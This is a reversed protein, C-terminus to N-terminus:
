KKEGWGSVIINEIKYKKELNKLISIILFISNLFKGLISNYRFVLSEKLNIDPKIINLYKKNFKIGKYHDSNKFYKIPNIYNIKNHDLYVLADLSLPVWYIKKIRPSNKKIFRIEKESGVFSINM